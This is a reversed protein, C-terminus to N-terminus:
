GAALEILHREADLGPIRLRHVRASLHRLPEFEAEPRQGKQALVRGGPVLLREGQNWIDALSAFARALITDFGAEPRYQEVRATAVDVNKLGLEIIAQQVFRTKKGNSDLLVFQREPSM